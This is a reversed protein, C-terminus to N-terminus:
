KPNPNVRVSQPDISKLGAAQWFAPAALRVQIQEPRVTGADALPVEVVWHPPNQVVVRPEGLTLAWARGGWLFLCLLGGWLTLGLRSSIQM